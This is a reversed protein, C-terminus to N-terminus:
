FAFKNKTNMIRNTKQKLVGRKKQEHTAEIPYNTIEILNLYINLIRSLNKQQTHRAKLTFIFM